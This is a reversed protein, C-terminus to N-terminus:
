DGERTTLLGDKMLVQRMCRDAIRPDHTIIIVTIGQEANLRIFLDMIEGGVKSDLAGTPEDALIITPENVLARAIAVRQQQGGSLESPLHNSRDAMGMAELFPAARHAAERQSLGRYLLPLAVNDRSNLKSLLNFQQFVFGIKRNRITALENETLTEISRGDFYVDGSSPKDLLGIINMMTSKGSGSSGMIALLEGQEITLSVGKLVELQVAGVQFHKRIESLCILSSTEQM